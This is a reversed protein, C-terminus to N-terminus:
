PLSWYTLFCGFYERQGEMEKKLFIMNFVPHILCVVM